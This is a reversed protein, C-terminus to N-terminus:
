DYISLMTGTGAYSGGLRNGNRDEINLYCTDPEVREGKQSRYEYWLRWMDQAKLLRTRHPLSHWSDNVKVCLTQKDEEWSDLLYPSLGDDQRLREEITSAQVAVLASVDERNKHPIVLVAFTIVFLSFTFLLTRRTTMYDTGKTIGFVTNCIFDDMGMLPM